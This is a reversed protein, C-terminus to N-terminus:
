LYEQTREIYEDMANKFKDKIDKEGISQKSKQKQIEESFLALLEEDTIKIGLSFLLEIIKKIEEKVLVGAVKKLNNKQLHYLANYRRHAVLYDGKYLVGRQGEGDGINLHEGDALVERVRLRAKNGEDDGAYEVEHKVGDDVKYHAPRFFGHIVVM